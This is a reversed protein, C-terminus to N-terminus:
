IAIAPGVGRVNPLLLLLGFVVVYCGVAIWRRSWGLPLFGSILSGFGGFLLPLIAYGATAAASQRQAEALYTPLWTVFFYWVYSWCFYQLMLLFVQPQLLVRLWHAEHETVM